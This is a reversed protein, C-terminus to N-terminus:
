LLSSFGHLEGDLFGIEVASEGPELSDNFLPVRHGDEGVHKEFRSTTRVLTM